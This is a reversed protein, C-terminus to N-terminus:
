SLVQIKYADFDVVDGGVRKRTYFLVNPKSTLNDRITSMGVRDVIQYAAKFDGFAMALAGAGVPPMDTAYRIPYGLLPTNNFNGNLIPQFILRSAGDVLTMISAISQRRILFEANAQYVDKVGTILNILGSYTFAGSSGTGIQEIQSGWTTGAAYTLLGRPQTVGNGSVFATAEMRGFKDAMKRSLYAELDFGQDELMKRTVVPEAYLEQAVIKKKAAQPTSTTVVPGREGVWGAGIDNPDEPVEFEATGITEVNAIQRIPSSEFVRAAVRQAVTPPLIWYGGDPDSGVSMDKQVDPSMGATDLRLYSTFAKAYAEAVNVDAHFEGPRMGAQLDRRAKAFAEANSQAKSIQEETQVPRQAKAQMANLERTVTEHKATIEEALKKVKEELLVDQEKRAKEATAKFEEFNRGISDVSSKILELSM